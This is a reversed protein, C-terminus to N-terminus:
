MTLDSRLRSIADNAGSPKLSFLKFIAERLDGIQQNRIAERAKNKWFDAQGRNTFDSGNALDKTFIFSMFDFNWTMAEFGLTSMKNLIYDEEQHNTAQELQEELDEFESKQDEDGFREIQDKAKKFRNDDQDKKQSEKQTREARIVKTEVENFRDILNSASAEDNEVNIVVDDYNERIDELEKEVDSVDVGSAKMQQVSTEAQHIRVEMKDLTDELDIAGASRLTEEPIEYDQSPIYGTIHINRNEDIEIAIEVESGRPVVDEMAASRVTVAGTHSNAVPNDVNEGEFIEIRIEDAEDPDLPKTTRYTREAKAPLPTNKKVVVDIVAYGTKPDEIMVGLSMPAPPASMKLSTENHRIEFTGGVAPIENGKADQATVVFSNLSNVQLAVDVMFVGFESGEDDEMYDIDIWGSSWTAGKNARAINIRQARVGPPNIIKGVVETKGSSTISDYTIQFAAEGAAAQYSDEVDLVQTAAYIAAGRAVVTMPDISCDLDVGFVEALRRQVLPFRSSGGVLIIKDLQQANLGAGELAKQAITISREVTDAILAELQARTIICDLSDFDVIDENDDELEYDENKLHYRVEQATSLEIKCQECGLLLQRVNCRGDSTEEDLADDLAYEENLSPLVIERYILRDIDTGGFYNDGESNIVELRGNKTSIIAVDLTGGGYDYVMWYKDKADPRAGYAVAAAIPEQLLIVHSFGALEAAKNTAESQLTKFAAPVTIVADLFDHGYRNKADARVKKLIEASLEIPTKTIGSSVFIIEKDSGMQRKFQVALDEAKITNYAREGVVMSGKKNIMVASPTVNTLGSQVVECGNNNDPVAICSNTTGLDIGCDFFKQM